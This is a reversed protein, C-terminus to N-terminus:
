LGGRLPAGAKPGPTQSFAELPTFTIAVIDAPPFALMTRILPQSFGLPELAHAFADRYVRIRQLDGEELPGIVADFGKAQMTRHSSPESFAVAIAATERIAQLVREGQASSIFVTVRRGDPSIRCGTSRVLAPLNDRDCSAVSISVGGQMFALHEADILPTSQEAM